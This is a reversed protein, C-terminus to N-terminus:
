GTGRKLIPKFEPVSNLPDKPPLPTSRLRVGQNLGPQVSQAARAPTTEGLWIKQVQEGLLDTGSPSGYRLYAAGLYTSSELTM